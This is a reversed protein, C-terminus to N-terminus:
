DNLSQARVVYHTRELKLCEFFYDPICGDSLVYRSIWDQHAKQLPTHMHEVFFRMDDLINVFYGVHKKFEGINLLKKARSHERTSVDNFKTVIGHGHAFANRAGCFNTLKGIISSRKTAEEIKDEFDFQTNLVFMTVKDRFSIADVDKMMEIRDLDKKLFDNAFRRFFCNLGAELVFHLYIYGDIIDEERVQSPSNQEAEAIRKLVEFCRNRYHNILVASDHVGVVSDSVPLTDRPTLRHDAM